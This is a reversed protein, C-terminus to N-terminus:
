AAAALELLEAASIVYVRACFDCSAEAGGDQVAMDRLEDKGVTSLANVVKERSCRCAFRARVETLLKLPGLSLQSALEQALAHANGPSIGEARELAEVLAGVRLTEGVARAAAAADESMPLVLAGGVAALPEEASYLAEVALEGALRRDARLYASLGADLGGGAFPVVARHLEEDQEERGGGIARLVMLMGAQDDHPGQLVPGAGFRLLRAGPVALTAFQFGTPASAGAGRPRGSNADPKGPKPGQAGPLPGIRVGARDLEGVRVMGRVEGLGNADVFLGRLPGPCDLQLDVRARTPDEPRDTSALLLAGCLGQGLTAASGPQLQHRGAAERALVPVSAVALRLGHAPVDFVLLQDAM